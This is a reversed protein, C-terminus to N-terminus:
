TGTQEESDGPNQDSLPFIRRIDDKLQIFFTKFQVACTARLPIGSRHMMSHFTTNVSEIVVNDFKLFNGITATIQGKAGGGGKTGEFAEWSVISKYSPGPPDLLFGSAGKSPMTMKLLEIIPQMVESAPDNEAIFEIELSMDIPATGSWTQATMAQNTLAGIGLMQTADGLKTGMLGQGFPQSFSSTVTLQFTEPVYAKVKGGGVQSIRMVYNSNDKMGYAM